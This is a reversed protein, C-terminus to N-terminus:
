EESSLDVGLHCWIEYRSYKWQAVCLLSHLPRRALVSRFQSAQLVPCMLVSSVPGSYNESIRVSSPKCGLAGHLFVVGLELDLEYLQVQRIVAM